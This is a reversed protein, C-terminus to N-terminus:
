RASADRAPAYPHTLAIGHEACRAQIKEFRRRDLMEAHKQASEGDGLACASLAALRHAQGDRPLLKLTERALALATRHDGARFATYAGKRHNMAMMVPRTEVYAAAADAQTEIDLDTLSRDGPDLVPREARLGSREATTRAHSEGPPAHERDAPHTATTPDANLLWIAAALAVLLAASLLARKM